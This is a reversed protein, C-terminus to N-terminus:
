PGTLWAGYWARFGPSVPTFGGWDPDLTWIEGAHPGNLVLRDYTGCGHEALTLTGPTVDEPRALPGPLPGALPFPAALRGPLRDERWEDDVAWGDDADGTESAAEPRPATLPLLGHAPGAPGDGAAAVFSRYEPPLAIGHAEEFARIAAEPLPPTLVYRHTRAGFRALAPDGAAKERVRARVAPGDWGGGSGAGSGSRTTSM